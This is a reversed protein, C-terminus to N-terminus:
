VRVSANQKSYSLRDALNVNELVSECCSLESLKSIKSFSKISPRSSPKKYFCAHTFILTASAFTLTTGLTLILTKGAVPLFQTRTWLLCREMRSVAFKGSLLLRM